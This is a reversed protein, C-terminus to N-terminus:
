DHNVLNHHVGQLTEVAQPSWRIVQKVMKLAKAKMIVFSSQTKNANCDASTMSKIPANYDDTLM